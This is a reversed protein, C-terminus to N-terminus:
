PKPKPVHNYVGKENPKNWSRNKNIDLKERAAEIISNFNLGEIHAANVLLIFIDAFEEKINESDNAKIAMELEKAEDQLHLVKSLSTQEPFTNSAWSNIEDVLSLAEKYATLQSSLDQEAQTYGALYNKIREKYITCLDYVECQSRCSKACIKKSYEKAKEEKSM